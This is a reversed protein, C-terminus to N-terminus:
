YRYSSLYHVHVIGRLLSTRGGPNTDRPPPFQPCCSWWVRHEIREPSPIETRCRGTPPRAAIGSGRASCHPGSGSFLCCCISGEFFLSSLNKLCEGLLLMRIYFCQVYPTKRIWVRFMRVSKARGFGFFAIFNVLNIIFLPNGVKWINKKIDKWTHKLGKYWYLYTEFLKGPIRTRILKSTFHM